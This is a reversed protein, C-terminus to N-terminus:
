YSYNDYRRYNNVPYGGSTAPVASTKRMRNASNCYIRYERPSYIGYTLGAALGHWFSQGTEVSAIGREGCIENPDVEKTQGLGWFVFHSTGEYSPITARTNNLDFKQHCCGSMLLCLAILYLFKKM